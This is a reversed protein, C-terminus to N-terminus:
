RWEHMFPIEDDMAGRLSAAGGPAIAKSSASKSVPTGGNGAKAPSIARVTVTEKDTPPDDRWDKYSGLSLELEQGLWSDSEYGWAKGLIRNNTANLFFTDGSELELVPCGYKEHEYINIIRDVRPGDRVDDPKVPGASYQRMDMKM